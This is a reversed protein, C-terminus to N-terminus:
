AKKGRVEDRYAEIIGIIATSNVRRSMEGHLIKLKPTRQASALRSLLTQERVNLRFM